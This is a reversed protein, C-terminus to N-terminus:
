TSEKPVEERLLEPTIVGLAYETLVMQEMMTHVANTMNSENM